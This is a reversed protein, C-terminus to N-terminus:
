CTLHLAAVVKGRLENFKKVAEPTKGVILKIGMGEIASKVDNGVKMIGSEGTGVILIDPHFDLVERIDDLWLNHGEKRWWGDKVRDPYIIVDSTYEKGEIRIRGFSYHEIRM